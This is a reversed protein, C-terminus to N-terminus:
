AAHAHLVSATWPIRPCMQWNNDSQSCSQFGCAWYTHGSYYLSGLSKYYSLVILKILYHIKPHKWLRAVLYLEQCYKHKKFGTLLYPKTAVHRLETLWFLYQFQAAKATNDMQRVAMYYYHFLIRNMAYFTFYNSTKCRVAKGNNPLMQCQHHKLMTKIPLLVEVFIHSVNNPFFSCFSLLAKFIVKEKSLWCSM